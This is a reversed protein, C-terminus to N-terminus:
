QRSLRHSMKDLKSQRKADAIANAAFTASETVGAYRPIVYFHLQPM